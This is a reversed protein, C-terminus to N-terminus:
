SARASACLPRGAYTAELDPPSQVDPLRNSRRREGEKIRRRKRKRRDREREKRRM